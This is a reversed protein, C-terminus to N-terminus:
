TGVVVVFVDGGEGDGIKILFALSVFFGDCLILHEPIFSTFVVVLCRCRVRLRPCMMWVVLERAERLASGVWFFRLVFFM